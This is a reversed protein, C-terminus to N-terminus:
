SGRRSIASDVGPTRNRDHEGRTGTAKHYIRLMEEAIRDWTYRACVRDRGALGLSRRLFTDDLIPSAAAAIARPNRPPVLRGTVDDVVTDLTGGVASAIVPIGCAMAELPVTGFGEYWPASIVVDASRLMHPMSSHAIAGTFVVRDAVGLESALEALRRVEASDSLHGPDPGGVIILEAQPIHRLALIITDFGRDALSTAAAVIRPREGHEVCTGHACFEDADVGCPVVSLRSRPVGFRALEQVEETCTAVVWSAHRAVLRELKARADSDAERRGLQREKVACLEHFTQVTPVGSGLTALETAVGSTWFHAHAVDPASEAWGLALSHGFEGLYDPIQAESVPEPPGADVHVVTYGHATAIRDPSDPDSRRTYVTVEHGQRAVAASLQAVYISRADTYPATTDALPSAHTSVVAAKM